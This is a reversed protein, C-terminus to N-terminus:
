IRKSSTQVNNRACKGDDSESESDASAAVDPDEDDESSSSSSSEEDSHPKKRKALKQAAVLKCPRVSGRCGDAAAPSARQHRSKTQQQQQRKGAPKAPPRRSLGIVAAAGYIPKKMLQASEFDPSVIHAELSLQEEMDLPMFRFKDCWM